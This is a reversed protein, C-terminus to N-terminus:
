ITKVYIRCFQVWMVYCKRLKIIRAFLGATWTKKKM